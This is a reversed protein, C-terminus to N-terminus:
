GYAQGEIGMAGLDDGEPSFTEHGIGSSLGRFMHRVSFMKETHRGRCEESVQYFKFGTSGENRGGYEAEM